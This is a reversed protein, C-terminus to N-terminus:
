AWRETKGHGWVERLESVKVGWDRARTVSWFSILIKHWHTALITLWRRKLCSSGPDTHQPEGFYWICQRIEIKKNQGSGLTVTVTPSALKQANEEPGFGPGWVQTRLLNRVSPHRHPGGPACYWYMTPFHRIKLDPNTPFHSKNHFFYHPSSPIEFFENHGIHRILVTLSSRTMLYKFSDFGWCIIHAM